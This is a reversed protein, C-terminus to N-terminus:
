NPLLQDFAEFMKTESFSQATHLAAASIKECTAPNELETLYEIWGNNVSSVLFGDIGHTIIEPLAGIRAAIVPIVHSMAELVTLGFAEPNRSPQVLVSIKSFFEATNYIFGLLEIHNQLHNQWIFQQIEQKQRGEGAILIKWNPHNPLYPLLSTLFGLVGKEPDLRSLIGITFLEGEGGRLKLPPVRERKSASPQPPNHVAPYIVQINKEPVGLKIFENKVFGSVAIITVRRAYYLYLFKLPNLKLWRGPIKHEIFVPKLNYTNPKILLGPFILKETLSQCFFISDAPAAAVINKLKIKAILFTLPWLLLSWKSTPEWGLFTRQRPLGHKEFLRFLHQDSTILKIQRGQAHFHQALKLTHFEAGGLSAVLPFKFFFISM